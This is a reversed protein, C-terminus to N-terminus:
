KRVRKFVVRSNISREWAKAGAETLHIQVGDLDAPRDSSAEFWAETVGKEVDLDRVELEGDAGRKYPALFEGCSCQLGDEVRVRCRSRHQDKRHGCM